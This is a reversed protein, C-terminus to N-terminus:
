AALFEVHPQNNFGRVANLGWTHANIVSVCAVCIWGFGGNPAVDQSVAEAPLHENDFDKESEFGITSAGPTRPPFVQSGALVPATM